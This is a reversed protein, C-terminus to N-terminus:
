VTPLSITIGLMTYRNGGWIFANPSQPLRDTELQVQDGERHSMTGARAYIQRTKQVSGALHGALGMNEQPPNARM